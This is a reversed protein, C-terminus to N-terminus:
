VVLDDLAYISIGSIIANNASATFDINLTGDSVTVTNSLTLAEFSSATLAFVDIDDFDGTVSGELAVDFIREGSSTFWPEMLELTVIYEGATPLDIAYSFDAGFRYTQYLVDDVTNSIANGSRNRLEGATAGPDAAYNIGTSALFAGGGVNYAAVLTPSGTPSDTITISTDLTAIGGNQDDATITVPVATDAGVSLDAGPAVVVNTGNVAFRPDSISFVLNDGDPDFASLSGVVTGAPASESVTSGTLAVNEPDDNVPAVNVSVTTSYDTGDKTATYIFSDTGFFDADPTYRIQGSEISVSGNLASGVSKLTAAPDDNALVDILVNEDENTSAVDPTLINGGDNIRYIAVAQAIANNFGAESLFDLDLVGDSVTVTYEVTYLNLAGATAFVDINNFATPVVGEFAVDFQRQGSSTAWPEAFMLQVLYDGADLVFDYSFGTGGAQGDAFRYTELLFDDETGAFSLEPKYRTATPGSAVPGPDAEFFTGDQATYSGGGFNVAKVLVLDPDPPPPPPPPPPDDSISYVEISSLIANNAIPTFDLDLVGDSVTVVQTLKIPGVTGGGVAYLDINDFSGAAVGELAVDFVRQGTGTAWPEIFGLEVIYVGDEPVAIDYSFSGFGYQQYLPDDQTGPVSVDTRNRYSILGGSVGPDASYFINTDVAAYGGGGVNIATILAGKEVEGTVTIRVTATDFGGNGDSVEYTFTDITQEGPALGSFQGNTNYSYSGNANLTLLAGSPLTVTQGVSSAAGNVKSVTLGDGDPDSDNSLVNGTAIESTFIADNDNAAIPAENDGGSGVTVTIGAGVRGAINNSGDVVAAMLRYVGDNPDNPDPDILSLNLSGFGSSNLTVYQISLGEISNFDLASPLLGVGSADDPLTDGQGILVAVRANPEGQLQLVQSADAVFGRQGNSLTGLTMTVPAALADNVIAKSSSLGTGFLEGTASTGDAFVATVMTGTLELGSIAGQPSGSGFGSASRPDVDISFTFTEGPNFDPLNIILTQYGGAPLPNIAFGSADVVGTGGASDVTFAKPTGADGTGDTDWFIDDVFADDITLVLQTIDQTGTNTVTFSGSTFTSDAAVNVTVEGTAAPKSQGELTVSGWNAEFPEDNGSTSLLTWAPASLKGGVRYEGQIADLLDGYLQVPDFSGTVLGDLTQAEYRAVVIGSTADVEFILDTLFTSIDVNALSANTQRVRLAEVGDAEYVLEIYGDGIMLSLFDDQNGASLAAGVKQDPGRDALPISRFPNWTEVTLTFMESQPLFGSQFGHYQNNVGGEASGDPTAGILITNATGGLVVDDGGLIEPDFRDLSLTEPLDDGNTMFGTIGVRFGQQQGPLESEPTTSEFDWFLTQGAALTTSQGNTADYAFADIVDAIGDGDRDTPDENGVSGDGPELIRISGTGTLGSVFILGHFPEDPRPAMVDIPGGVGLSYEEVKFGSDAVGDGDNDVLQIRIMSQTGYRVALIDGVLDGDFAGAFTYEAIGNTSKSSLAIAGDQTGEKLFYAEQIDLMFQPILSDFDSPLQALPTGSGDQEYLGALSGSARFPNPHGFYAGEVILHLQDQNSTPTDGQEPLNTAIVNGNSDTTTVVTGGWSPNGGNDFTFLSGNETQLIEVANRLGTAYFSVPGDPDFKAQNLGGNGGFLEISADVGENVGSRTPDDLTPLNYYYDMGYADTKISMEFIAALDIKLIAGSYLYEPLYELPAAPAGANTNGGTSVLLYPNGEDDILYEVDNLLHDHQSRPLGRVLDVKEWTGSADMSLMSLIGSNSDAFTDIRPDNSTVYIVPDQATGAIDFGMVFRGELSIPTGDDNHNQISGLLDIEHVVTAVYNGDNDQEIDFAYIVGMLSSAYLLGDPGFEMHTINSIDEGDARVLTKEVFDAM